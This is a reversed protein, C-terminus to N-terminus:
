ERLQIILILEKLLMVLGYFIVVGILLFAIFALLSIPNQLKQIDELLIKIIAFIVGVASASALPLCILIDNIISERSGLEESYTIVDVGAIEAVIKPKKVKSGKCLLTIVLNEKKDLYDIEIGIANKEKSDLYQIKPEMRDSSGSHNWDLIETGDEFIIEIKKNRIDSGKVPTNSINIFKIQVATLNDIIEDKYEIKFNKKFSEQGDAVTPNLLTIIKTINCILKGRTYHRTILFTILITIAISIILFIINEIYM